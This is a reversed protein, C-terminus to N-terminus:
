PEGGAACLTRVNACISRRFPTPLFLSTATFFPSELDLRQLNIRQSVSNHAPEHDSEIM